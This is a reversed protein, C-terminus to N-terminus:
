QRTFAVFAAPVLRYESTQLKVVVSIGWAGKVAGVSAEGAFPVVPTEVFGVKVHFAVAPAREYWSWTDASGLKEVIMKSLPLIVNVDQVSLPRFLLAV